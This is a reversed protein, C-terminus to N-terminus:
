FVSIKIYHRGKRSTGGIEELRFRGLGRVSILDGAKVPTSCKLVELHNIKVKGSEIYIDVDSRSLNFAGAIAADLRLSAVTFETVKLEPPQFIFEECPVKEVTVTSNKVRTLQQYIYDVLDMDMILFAGGDQVVIDGLKERKLGLNLLAGLYDRHGISQEKYEKPNIFIYAIRSDPMVEWDPYVVLRKREADDYGGDLHWGISSYNVAVARALEQQRLDLFDSQGTTGRLARKVLEELRALLRKEDDNRALNILYQNM